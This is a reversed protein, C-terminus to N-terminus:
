VITSIRNVILVAELSLELDHVIDALRRPSQVSSLPEAAFSPPPVVAADLVPCGSVIREPQALASQVPQSAGAHDKSRRRRRTLSKRFTLYLYAAIAGAGVMAGLGAAAGTRFVLALLSLMLFVVTTIDPM